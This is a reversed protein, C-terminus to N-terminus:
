DDFGVVQKMKIVHLSINRNEKLFEHFESDFQRNNLFKELKGTNDADIFIIYDAWYCLDSSYKEAIEEETLFKPAIETYYGFSAVKPWWVYYLRDSANFGNDSLLKMFAGYLSDMLTLKKNFLTFINMSDTHIIKGWVVPNGQYDFYQSEIKLDLNKGIAYYKPNLELKIEIDNLYKWYGTIIAKSIETADLFGKKNFYKVISSTDFIKWSNIIWKNLYIYKEYSKEFDLIQLSDKVENSLLNDLEEFCEEMNSPIFWGSPSNEDITPTIIGLQPISDTKANLQILTICFIIIKILLLRKM